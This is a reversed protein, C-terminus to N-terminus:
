GLWRGTVEDWLGGYGWHRQANFIIAPPTPTSASAGSGLSDQFTQASLAGSVDGSALRVIFPWTANLPQASDYYPSVIGCYATGVLVDAQVGAGCGFSLSDTTPDIPCYWFEGDAAQIVSAASPIPMSLNGSFSASASATYTTNEQEDRNSNSVWQNGTVALQMGAYPPMYTQASYGSVLSGDRKAYQPNYALLLGPESVPSVLWNPTYRWMVPDMTGGADVVSKTRDLYCGLGDGSSGFDGDALGSVSAEAGHASASASCSFPGAFDLTIQSARWFFEALQSLTFRICFHSGVGFVRVLRSSSKSPIYGNYVTSGDWQQFPQGDEALAPILFPFGNYLGTAHVSAM